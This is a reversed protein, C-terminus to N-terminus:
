SALAQGGAQLMGVMPPLQAVMQVLARISGAGTKARISGIQTRVTSLAVGNRGAIDQPPLGGCLGKLVQTEALTLGHSRAFGEVSLEECMSRKGLMLLVAQEGSAGGLGLPVVAVSCRQAADGLKLLRRLGRRAAQGVAERLAVGDADLRPRLERGLLQLPHQADLDRRAAKNAHLLHGDQALLLMGYDVEDLMHGMCRQALSASRRREPGCYGSAAAGTVPGFLTGVMSALSAAARPGAERASHLAPGDNGILELM